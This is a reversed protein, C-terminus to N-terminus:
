IKTSLKCMLAFHPVLDLRQFSLNRLSKTLGFEAWTILREGLNLSGIRAGPLDLRGVMEMGISHLVRQLSAPTYFYMWTDSFPHRLWRYVYGRNAFNPAEIILVGDPKLFRKVVTLDRLPFPLYYVMDVMTIVDFLEDPLSADGLLSHIIRAKPLRERAVQCATGSPEIGVRVWSEPFMELLTGYSSGIDLVAGPAPHGHLVWRAIEGLSKARYNLLSFPPRNETWHEAFDQGVSQERRRPTRFVLGCQKCRVIHGRAKDHWFISTPANEGCMICDIEEWGVLNNPKEIIDPHNSENIM